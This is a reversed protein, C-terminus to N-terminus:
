LLAPLRSKPVNALPADEAFHKPVELGSRVFIALDSGRTFLVAFAGELEPEQACVIEHQSLRNGEM